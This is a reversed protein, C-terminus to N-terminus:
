EFKIRKAADSVAQRHALAEKDARDQARREAGEQEAVRQNVLPIVKRLTAAHYREVEEMTTGDLIIRDGSVSAIGPRHM